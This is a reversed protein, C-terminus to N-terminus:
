PRGGFRGRERLHAASDRSPQVFQARWLQRCAEAIINSLHVSEYRRRWRKLAAVINSRLSLPADPVTAARGSIADHDQFSM